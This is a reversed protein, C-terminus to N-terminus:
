PCVCKKPRGPPNRVIKVCLKKEIRDVFSKPALMLGKRTQDRIEKLFEDDERGRLYERWSDISLYEKADALRIVNYQKGLHARASSWSYQWAKETIGARVPNNEIYRFVREIHAGSVLCSYFRGQWLHGKQYKKRNYYQSYKMHATQFLCGMSSERRPKVLFHVHNDMLCFAYIDVEYKQSKEEIYKLYTVRDQDEEFVNQRYNGRQTVHHLYGPIVIRATRPMFFDGELKQSFPQPIIM